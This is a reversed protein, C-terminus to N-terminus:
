FLWGKALSLAVPALALAEREVRLAPCQCASLGEAVFGM